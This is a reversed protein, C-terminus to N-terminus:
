LSTSNSVNIVIRVISFGFEHCDKNDSLFSHCQVANAIRAINQELKTHPFIEDTLVKHSEKGLPATSLSIRQLAMNAEDTLISNIDEDALTVDILDRWSVQVNVKQNGDMLKQLNFFSSMKTQNFLVSELCRSLSIDSESKHVKNPLPM